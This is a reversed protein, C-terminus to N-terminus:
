KLQKLLETVPTGDPAKADPHTKLLEEWAKRAGAADHLDYYFVIGTNFLAVPHGPEIELTKKFCDLAKQYQGDRRYMVGLDTMVSPDDAKLRLANEYAMISLKAQDADFYLNGLEVFANRDSPNRIVAKELEAIRAATARDPAPSQQPAAQQAPAPASQFSQAQSGSHDSMAQHVLVGALFGAAFLCLALFFFGFRSFFIVNSPRPEPATVPVQVAAPLNQKAM